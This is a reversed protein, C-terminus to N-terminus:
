TLQFPKTSASNNAPNLDHLSGSNVQAVLFYKGAALAAPLKVKIAYSKSKFPKLALAEGHTFLQTETTGAVSLGSVFVQITVTGTAKSSGADKVSITITAFAGPKEFKPLKALLSAALEVGAAVIQGETTFSGSNGAIAINGGPTAAIIGQASSLFTDFDQQLQSGTDGPASSVRPPGSSVRPPASSTVSQGALTLLTKGTGDFSTDLSGNTNYRAVAIGQNALSASSFGDISKGSAVIQGSPQVLVTTIATDQGFSTIVHGSGGFTRDPKGASTYRLVAFDTALTGASFSGTASLGGVVIDGKSDLAVSTAVDAVGRLNTVIRGGIGFRTDLAGNPQLRVLAISALGTSPNGTSGAVVLDGNTQLVAANASDSGGSFDEVERGSGNFATDATGDANYAAIAFDKTGNATSSGVVFFEGGNGLVVQNAVDKSTTPSFSTLVTGTGNGGFSTDISGDTNFLALAFQSSTIQGGSEVSATGAELIQGNPLVTVGCPQADTGPFSVSAIGNTGFTTDLSGDANYRTVGFEQSGPSGIVGAIVSQGNPGVALGSTAAFGVNNSAVGATGFTPDLQGTQKPVIPAPPPNTSQILISLDDQGNQGSNPQDMIAVNRAANLAGAFNLTQTGASSNTTVSATFTGNPAISYTGSLEEPQSNSDTFSGNLGGAGDFSVLGQGGDASLTWTGTMDANSYSGSPQVITLLRTNNNAPLAAQQLNSDAAGLDKSSDIFGAFTSGDSATLTFGGNSAVAYTGTISQPVATQDDAIIGTFGGKGDLTFIGHGSNTNTPDSSGDGAYFAYWTGALDANSFSGSGSNVVVGLSNNAAPASLAMVNKSSNMAGTPVQTGNGHITVLGNSTISYTGGPIETSGDDHTFFGGVINGNGDFQVTGTTDMQALFWNNNLDANTFTVSGSLLMRGELAEIAYSSAGLRQSTTLRRRSAAYAADQRPQKASIKRRSKHLYSMEDEM